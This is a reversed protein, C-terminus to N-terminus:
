SALLADRLQKLVLGPLENIDDLKVNKRYFEQVSDSMIGVGVINVGDAEIRRVM